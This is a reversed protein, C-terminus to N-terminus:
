LDLLEVARTLDQSSPITYIRTTNLNSHGLLMAVKDLSVDADVLNKAFSHRLSHPTVEVRALRGLEELRRQLGSPTLANGRKGTFVQGPDAGRLELWAQLAERVTRNLPVARAKDGKGTRVHVTGKRESLEFDALDLACVESVRLGANLMLLVAARDRTAQRRGFDSVATLLDKELARTIAAQQKKDLWKPAMTQEKVGRVGHAPNDGIVGATRMSEGYMRLAALRRNITAPKAKAPGQLFQRYLRIDTPTLNDGALEEGNAEEFWRAFIALDQTYGRITHTARGEGELYDRFQDITGPLM